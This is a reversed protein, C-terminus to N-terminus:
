GIMSGDVNIGARVQFSGVVEMRSGNLRWVATWFRTISRALIPDRRPSRDSAMRRAHAKSQHIVDPRYCNNKSEPVVGLVTAFLSHHSSVSRFNWAHGRVAPGGTIMFGDTALIEDDLRGAINSYNLA